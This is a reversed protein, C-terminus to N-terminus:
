EIRFPSRQRHRVNMDRDHAIVVHKAITGKGRADDVEFHTGGPGDVVPSVVLCEYMATVPM